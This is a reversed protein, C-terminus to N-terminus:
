KVLVYIYVNKLSKFGCVLVNVFLIWCMYNFFKLIVINFLIKVILSYGIKVSKINM